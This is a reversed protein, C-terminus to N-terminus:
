EESDNLDWDYERYEIDYQYWEVLFDKEYYLTIYDLIGPNQYNKNQKLWELFDDEYWDFIANLYIEKKASDVWFNETNNIFERTNKQLQKELIEPLYATNILPPCSNSACNIAFHIRPDSFRKRVIDDELSKFSIKEGGILNKDLWILFGIFKIDKISGIPYNDIIKKLIFANYANIWYSLQEERTIYLQPHSDPSIKGLQDTFQYLKEKETILSKYDVKDAQVYKQLLSDYTSYEIQAILNQFLSLSVGLTLIFYFM